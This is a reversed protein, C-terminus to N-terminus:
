WDKEVKLRGISKYKKVKMNSEDAKLANLIAEAEQKGIKKEIDENSTKMSDSSMEDEVNKEKGESM